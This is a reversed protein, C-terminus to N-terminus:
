GILVQRNRQRLEFSRVSVRVDNTRHTTLRPHDVGEVIVVLHTDRDVEQLPPVQGLSLIDEDEVVTTQGPRLFACGVRGVGVNRVQLGEQVHKTLSARLVEPM